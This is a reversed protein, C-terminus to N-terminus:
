IRLNQTESATEFIKDERKFLAPLPAYVQFKLLLGYEANWVPPKLCNINFPVCPSSSYDNHILFDLSSLFSTCEANTRFVNASCM